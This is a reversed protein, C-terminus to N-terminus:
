FYPFKSCRLIFVIGLQTDFGAKESQPEIAGSLLFIWVNSVFIKAFDFNNEFISQM